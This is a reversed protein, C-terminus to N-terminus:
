GVGMRGSRLSKMQYLLRGVRFEDNNQCSARTIYARLRAIEARRPVRATVTLDNAVKHKSRPRSSWREAAIRRHATNQIGKIRHTQGM